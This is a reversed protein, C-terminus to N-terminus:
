FRPEDRQERQRLNHMVDQICVQPAQVAIIRLEGLSQPHVSHERLCEAHGLHYDLSGCGYTGLAPQMCGASPVECHTFRPCARGPSRFGDPM